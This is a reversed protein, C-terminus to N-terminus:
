RPALRWVRIGLISKRKRLQEQLPVPELMVKKGVSSADLLYLKGDTGRKVIGLHSVDLGDMTTVLGVMDGSKVVAAVKKNDLDNKSVYPIRHNVYGVEVNKIKELQLSDSLSPYSDRHTSMYNISKVKYRVGEVDTTVEKVNSRSRNDMLWDSIYHLRSAYDSLSGSRYRVNELALAYDRWSTRGDLTTRTLAYLTEVFTTCDLEDINITLEEREGELTHAVYPRGLLQEAYFLTLENAGKMETAKGAELLQNIEITDRECHHRMPTAGQVTASLTWWLAVAVAAASKILHNKIHKM